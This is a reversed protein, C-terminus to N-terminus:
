EILKAYSCILYLIILSNGNTQQQGTTDAGGNTTPAHLVDLTIELTYM